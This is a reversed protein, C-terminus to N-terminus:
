SGAGNWGRGHQHSDWGGVGGGVGGGRLWCGLRRWHSVGAVAAPLGPLRGAEQRSRRCRAPPLAPCDCTQSARPTVKGPARLGDLELRSRLPCVLALCLSLGPSLCVSAHQGPHSRPPGRAPWAALRAASSPPAPSTRQRCHLCRSPHHTWQRMRRPGPVTSAAMTHTYAISPSTGPSSTRTGGSGARCPQFPTINMYENVNVCRSMLKGKKTNICVIEDQCTRAAGSNAKHPQIPTM